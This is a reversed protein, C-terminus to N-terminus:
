LYWCSHFLFTYLKIFCIPISKKLNKCMKLIFKAQLAYTIKTIRNINKKNMEVKIKM